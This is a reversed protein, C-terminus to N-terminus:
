SIASRQVLCGSLESGLTEDLLVPEGAPDVLTCATLNIAASDRVDLAAGRDRGGHPESLICAAVTCATCRVLAIGGIGPGGHRRYDPNDDM